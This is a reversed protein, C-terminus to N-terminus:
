FALKQKQRFFVAASLTYALMCGAMGTIINPLPRAAPAVATSIMCVVVASLSVAGAVLLIGGFNFLKFGTLRHVGVLQFTLGALVAALSAYQGGIIGFQHVCPYILAIMTCAMVVVCNRHLHPHGTAFFVSTIQGSLLNALAVVSAVILPGSAPGYRHGYALMLLSHGCFFAFVIAPMCVLMIASMVKLLIRNIRAKDGQVMAIAPMITQGLMSMIFGMPAQVTYVAVTYLGLAAASNLKGLVFIDTRAFILNLFSLGFMRQSFQWLDRIAAKSWRLHPLFPCIIFSLVCRAASEFAYGIVLAWVSRLWYSLAVTLIVGSIGSVFNIITIKRFQMEKVAVFVKSSSAGDFLLGCACLRFLPTLEPNGYFKAIWPALTCLITWFILARGMSMWWAANVYEDESGKPNQIVAERVGIDMVTHLIETSSVVIAMTGFAAPVLMRTLLMNRAFRLTQAAFFGSGLWVGGRFIKAKLGEGSVLFPKKLRELVQSAVSM